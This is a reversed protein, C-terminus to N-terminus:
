LLVSETLKCNILWNILSSVRRYKIMAHPVSCQTAVYSPLQCSDELLYANKLGPKAGHLLLTAFCKLHHYTAAIALPLGPM